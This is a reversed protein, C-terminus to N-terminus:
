QRERDNGLCMLKHVSDTVSARCEWDATVQKIDEGGREVKSSRYRM